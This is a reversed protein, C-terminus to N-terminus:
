VKQQFDTDQPNLKLSFYERKGEFYGNLQYVCDQLIEPIIDTLKEKSEWKRPFKNNLTVLHKETKM